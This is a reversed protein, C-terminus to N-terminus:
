RISVQYGVQVSREILLRFAKYILCEPRCISQLTMLFGSLATNEPGTATKGAVEVGSDAAFASLSGMGPDWEKM